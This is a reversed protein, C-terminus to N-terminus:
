RVRARARVLGDQDFNRDREIERSLILEGSSRKGESVSKM